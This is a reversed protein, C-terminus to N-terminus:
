NGFLSINRLRVTRAYKGGVSELVLRCFGKDSHTIASAIKQLPSNILQMAM